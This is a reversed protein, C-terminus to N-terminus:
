PQEPAEIIAKWNLIANWLTRYDARNMDRHMPNFNYALVRGRGVPVDLIAPRGQLAEPNRGGGSVLIPLDAEPAAPLEVGPFPRTGWQLVVHRMDLPGDLCSTCYSMTLWRRPPDYFAYPSRFIPTVEPYGYAIPHQPQVFRARLHAGPTTVNALTSRRVNRVFGGDLVLTSGNGLSILLGGGRVFTELNALGEWGIGGTIDPSSAPTGLSPFEPTAEFAMPGSSREIGHIQGQLDLLVTGYLVVDVRARLDGARIDDDRLYIYPVGRQDLTYRIWGIMDTDAWPVWVGLRPAPADHRKVDPLARAARFDLSLERAVVDLADRLGPRDPLIWSGAPYDAKGHRFPEEAVQLAADGLRYRAALLAEQGRDALLYAAGKGEVRGPPAAAADLPTLAVGRVAVDDIRVVRVGFHLPLSWSIDDYPEHEADAPFHQPLLLDVAYNRYPQDLRVVFDGAAFRGEATDFRAAARHVEIRQDLLRQVLQAVRRPDAQQAPIVFAYPDGEVGRRWSNFGKAWFSRLLPQANRAAYDLAALAATQAYNVGDRHSWTFVAEPPPIPRYWERTLDYPALKRTVTLPVANGFTEYGRGIANHNMAVSDTFHHGFGEGFNWTWVGPMGLAALASMEHFSLELMESWVIPDLNPNYPGTGNWTQLLPIAEHLDHIVTPHWAFFMRAVAQTTALALQHADRNADVFVYKGWYPPSQRPLADYDSRGAHYRRFWDSMKDRGDPNAVPNILVVLRERIQRIMPAESVALRYALEMLMDPAVTEDAHVAGNFYYVPRARGLVADLAEPPTRRPDALAATAQRLAALDGIGAEDAIALLLIERGEETTGLVELHVRESASALARLYAYIPGSAPLEGPAGAIHGLFDLPSPVGESEPVDAVWPSVFHPASTAAAIAAASGPESRDGAGSGEAAARHSAAALLGCMLLLPLSRRAM